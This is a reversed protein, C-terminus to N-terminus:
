DRRSVCLLTAGIEEFREGTVPCRWTGSAEPILRNGAKGVWAVRRAPVGVALAYDAVDSSVVAGAGILAWSGVTVGGILIAGAGISAGDRVTVGEAEWDASSKLTGDPNIARPARDNTVVAGPGVFVGDGLVAPRYLLANNQIKCCSGIIVSADIFVNRGVVCGTGLRAGSRIQTLDWVICNEGLEAGVEVTANPAIQLM